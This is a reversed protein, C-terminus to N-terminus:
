DNEKLALALQIDPGHAQSSGRARRRKGMLGDLPWLDFTESSWQKMQLHSPLIKEKSVRRKTCQVSWCNVWHYRWPRRSCSYLHSIMTKQSIGWLGSPSLQSQLALPFNTGKSYMLTSNWTHTNFVSTNFWPISGTKYKENIHFVSVFCSWFNLM